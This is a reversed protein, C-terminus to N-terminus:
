QNTSSLVDRTSQVTAPQGAKRPSCGDAVDAYTMPLRTKLSERALEILMDRVKPYQLDCPHVALRLVPANQNYFRWFRVWRKSVLRRLRTRCSFTITPANIRIKQQLAEVGNWYTTFEFGCDILARRAEPSILWAPAVFGRTKLGMREFMAKGRELLTTADAYNLQYFEGERATYI